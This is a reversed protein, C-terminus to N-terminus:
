SAGLRALDVSWSRPRHVNAREAAALLLDLGPAKMIRGITRRIEAHNRYFTLEVWLDEDPRVNFLQRLRTRGRRSPLPDIRYAWPGAGGRDTTITGAARYLKRMARTM